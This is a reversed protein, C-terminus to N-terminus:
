PNSANAPWVHIACLRADHHKILTPDIEHWQMQVTSIVWIYIKFTFTSSVTRGVM